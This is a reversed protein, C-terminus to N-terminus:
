HNNEQKLRRPDGVAAVLSRERLRPLLHLSEDIGAEGLKDADAVELDGVHLLDKHRGADLRHNVLDLVVTRRQPSKSTSFEITKQLM